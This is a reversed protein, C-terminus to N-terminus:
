LGQSLAPQDYKGLFLIFVFSCPVFFFSLFAYSFRIRPMTALFVGLLWSSVATSFQTKLGLFTVSVCLCNEHCIPCSGHHAVRRSIQAHRKEVQLAIPALSLSASLFHTLWPSDKLGSRAFALRHSSESSIHWETPDSVILFIFSIMQLSTLLRSSFSLFLNVPNFPMSMLIKLWHPDMRSLLLSKGRDDVFHLGNHLSYVHHFTNRTPHSHRSFLPSSLQLIFSLSPPLHFFFLCSCSCSSASTHGM